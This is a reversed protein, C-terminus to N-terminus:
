KAREAWSTQEGCGEVDGEGKKTDEWPAFESSREGDGSAKSKQHFSDKLDNNIPTRTGGGGM